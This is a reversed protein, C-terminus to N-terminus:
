INFSGDPMLDYWYNLYPGPALQGKDQGAATDPKYDYVPFGAYTVQFSGNPRKATGLKSAMADGAATPAGKTLLPLWVSTCTGTCSWSPLENPDLAYLTHGNKSTLVETAGVMGTTVEAPGTPGAAKTPKKPAKIAKGTISVVYFHAEGEGSANGRAKGSVFYYLPHGYYTVQGKANRALHKARIDKGAVPKVKSTVRPWFSLCAGRCTSVSGKDTTHVYMVRGRTNAVIRGYKKTVTTAIKTGKPAMGTHPSSALAPAAVAAALLGASLLLSGALKGRHRVLQGM